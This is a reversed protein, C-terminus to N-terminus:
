KYIGRYVLIYYRKIMEVTSPDEAPCDFLGKHNINVKSIGLTYWCEYTGNVSMMCLASNRIGVKFKDKTLWAAGFSPRCNYPLAENPAEALAFRAHGSHDMFEVKSSRLDVGSSVIRCHSHISIPSLLLFISLSSVVAFLSRFVSRHVSIEDNKEDRQVEENIETTDM